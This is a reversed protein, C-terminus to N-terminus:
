CSVYLNCKKSHLGYDIYVYSSYTLLYAEDKGAIIIILNCCDPFADMFSQSVDSLAMVPFLITYMNQREICWVLMASPKSSTYNLNHLISYYILLIQTRTSSIHM